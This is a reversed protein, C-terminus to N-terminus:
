IASCPVNVQNNEWSNVFSSLDGFFAANQWGIRTVASMEAEASDPSFDTGNRGLACGSKTLYGSM